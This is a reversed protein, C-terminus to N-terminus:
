GSTSFFDIFFFTESPFKVRNKGGVSKIFGSQQNYIGSVVYSAASQEDVDLALGFRYDL